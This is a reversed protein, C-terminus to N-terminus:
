KFLSQGALWAASLGGAGYLVKGTTGDSFPVNANVAGWVLGVGAILALLAIGIKVPKM